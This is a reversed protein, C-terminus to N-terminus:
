VKVKLVQEYYRPCYTLTVQLFNGSPIMVEELNGRVDVTEGKKAQM